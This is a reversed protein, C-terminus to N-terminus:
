VEVDVVFTHGYEEGKELCERLSNHWGTSGGSGGLGLMWEDDKKVVMGSLKGGKMAFIPKSQDVDVLFIGRPLKLELIIRKM